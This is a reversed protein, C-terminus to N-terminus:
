LTNKRIAKEIRDSNEEILQLQRKQASGKKPVLSHYVAVEEDTIVICLARYEASMSAFRIEAVTIGDLNFIKHFRNSLQAMNKSWKIQRQKDELAKELDRATQHSFDESANDIDEENWLLNFGM